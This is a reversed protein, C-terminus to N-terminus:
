KSLYKKIYNVIKKKILNNQILNNKNYNFFQGTFKKTYLKKEFSQNFELIKNKEQRIYCVFLNVKSTAVESIMNISDSTILVYDAVKLIGPYFNKGEEHFLYFNKSSNFIEQLIIKVKKPTRRSTSVVLSGPIKEVAFKIDLLFKCYESYTLQYRKNDGGILLFILPKKFSDLKEKVLSYSKQIDKENFFSLAGEFKFVNKGCIKDHEPVLLIDFNIPNIKPNQVHINIIKKGFVKKALISYGSTRKGTTILYKFKFNNLFKKENVFFFDFYLALTPFIKLFINPKIKHIKFNINLLKSVAISQNEMGKTGDSIILCDIEM